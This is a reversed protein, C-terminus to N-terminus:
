QTSFHFQNIKKLCYKKAFIKTITCVEDMEILRYIKHTLYHNLHNSNEKKSLNSHNFSSESKSLDVM